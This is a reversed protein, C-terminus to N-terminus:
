VLEEKKTFLIETIKSNNSTNSEKADVMESVASLYLVPLTLLMAFAKKFVNKENKKKVM